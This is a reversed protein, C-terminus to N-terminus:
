RNFKVWRKHHLAGLRAPRVYRTRRPTKSARRNRKRRQKNQAFRYPTNGTEIIACHHTVRDLLAATMKADGFVSVWEGFELNTTIIVSTKEYLKSILHFLLAGGSKPFPIYGPEDITVSDLASLQRIIKRANGEAQEKILANILSCASPM